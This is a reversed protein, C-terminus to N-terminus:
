KLIKKTYLDEPKLNFYVCLVCLEDADIDTNSEKTLSEISVGTDLSVKEIDFGYISMYEIIKNKLEM